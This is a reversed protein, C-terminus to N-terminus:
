LDERVIEYSNIALHTAAGSITYAIQASANCLLPGFDSTAGHLYTSQGSVPDSLTMSSSGTPQSNGYVFCRLAPVSGSLTLTGSGTGSTLEQVRPFVYRNGLQTLGSLINASADTRIAAITRHGSFTGPLNTDDDATDWYARVTGGSTKKMIHLFYSTNTAVSGSILGNTGGGDSFASNLTTVLASSLIVNEADDDSRCQGANVTWERAGTRSGDLGVIYNGPLNLGTVTAATLDLSGTFANDGGLDPIAHAPAIAM